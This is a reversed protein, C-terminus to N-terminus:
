IENLREIVENLKDTLAKIDNRLEDNIKEQIKFQEAYFVVIEGIYKFKEGTKM